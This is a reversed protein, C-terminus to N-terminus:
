GSPTLHRPRPPQLRAAGRAHGADSRYEDEHGAFPQYVFRAEDPFRQARADIAYAIAKSREHIRAEDYVAVPTTCAAARRRRAGLPPPPLRLQDHGASDPSTNAFSGHIAQRNTIAVDGPACVLPVADPLRDSGAATSWRRSTPRAWATRARARGVAREGVHLRLAPGHLQVRPQGCDLDPSDWHTWGDQHWAVSAASAPRSSGSRRTSRCSTTATSRRPSPSCTPHGYSACAPRRSSCRASRDLQVCTSPRRRRAAGAREDEGPAPRQGREHRGVPGVAAPGLLINQAAATPRRAGPPRPPRRRRGEHGPRPRAHRRRRARHRRARGPRARGSSTSATSARLRRPDGPRPPRRRRLPDPRPQRARRGAGRGGRRYRVM